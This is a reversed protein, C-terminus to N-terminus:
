NWTEQACLVTSHRGMVELAMPRCGAQLPDQDPGPIRGVEHSVHFWTLASVDGHAQDDYPSVIAAIYLEEAGVRSVLSVTLMLLVDGAAWHLAPQCVLAILPLLACANCHSVICPTMPILVALHLRYQHQQNVQNKIDIISPHAAFHPHSHYWGICRCM